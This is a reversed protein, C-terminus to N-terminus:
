SRMRERRDLSPKRLALGQYVFALMLMGIGTVVWGVIIAGSGASRSLDLPLIFVGGGIMSGVVLTILPALM